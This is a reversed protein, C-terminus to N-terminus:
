PATLGITDYGSGAVLRVDDAPDPLAEWSDPNTPPIKGTNPKIARYLKGKHVVFFGAPYTVAPQGKALTAKDTWWELKRVNGDLEPHMFDRFAIPAVAKQVNNTQTVSPFTYKVFPLDVDFVNDVLFHPNKTNAGVGFVGIPKAADPYVEQYNGVFGRFFNREFRVTVENEEAHTYVGSQSTDAFYNDSFTVTDNAGHADSAVVTPFFEVFLDGTGVVINHHFTSSGTRQGFQINGDQYQAFASRWRVAGPGLVNHHIECGDALQGTQLAETGTRVFRNDHISLNVFTHQPQKQTSGFYIGESGTDHIYVDHLKVNSMTADGKDDTKASIGAFDVNRIEVFEIEFDTAYNGISLGTLGETTFQDDVLIGYTGQSHAYAGEAHGVFSPDGTKSTPDNRGTLVWNQGGSLSIGHGAGRAGVVVQGGLNTIVLPHDATRKPLNGLLINRYKGAPLYLRDLSDWKVTPYKAQVDTVSITLYGEGADQTPLTYTEKAEGFHGYVPKVSGGAGAGAGGTGGSSNAGGSGATAGSGSTGASGVGVDAGASGSAGAGSAATGASGGGEGGAGAGASAGPADDSGCAASTALAAPLLLWSWAHLRISKM